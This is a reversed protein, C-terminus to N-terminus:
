HARQKTRKCRALDMDGANRGSWIFGDPGVFLFTRVRYRRGFGYGHSEKVSRLTFTASGPWNSLKYRYHMGDAAVHTRDPGTGLRPDTREITLYLCARETATMTESELIACCKYCIRREATALTRGDIAVTERRNEPDVLTSAHGEVDYHAPFYCAGSREDNPMTGPKTGYNEGAASLTRVKAFPFRPVRTTAYGAAGGTAPPIPFSAGCDACTNSENTM